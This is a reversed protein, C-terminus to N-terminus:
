GNKRVSGAPTRGHCLQLSPFLVIGPLRQHSSWTDDQVPEKDSEEAATGDSRYIRQLVMGDVRFRTVVRPGVNCSVCWFVVDMLSLYRKSLYM